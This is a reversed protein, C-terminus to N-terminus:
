VESNVPGRAREWVASLLEERTVPQSDPDQQALTVLLELFKAPRRKALDDIIADRRRRWTRVLARNFDELM